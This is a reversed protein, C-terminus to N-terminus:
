STPQCELHLNLPWLLYLNSGFRLSTESSHSDNNGPVIVNRTINSSPVSQWSVHPTSVNTSEWSTPYAERINHTPLKPSTTLQMQHDDLLQLSPLDQTCYLSPLESAETSTQFTLSLISLSGRRQNIISSKGREQYSNPIRPHKM